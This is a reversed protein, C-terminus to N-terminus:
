RLPLSIEIRALRRQLSRLLSEGVGLASYVIEVLSQGGVLVRQDLHASVGGRQALLQMSGLQAVGLERALARCDGFTQFRFPLLRDFLQERPRLYELEVVLSKATFRREHALLQFRKAGHVREGDLLVLLFGPPEAEQRSLAIIQARCFVRQLQRDTLDVSSRALKEQLGENTDAFVEAVDEHRQKTSALAIQPELIGLTWELAVDFYVSRRTPLARLSDVKERATLFGKNSKREEKPYKEGLGTWETQEVFHVRREVILVNAVKYSHEVPELVVSLEDDYGVIWARRRFGGVRNIAHRHLLRTDRRQHAHTHATSRDVLRNRRIM